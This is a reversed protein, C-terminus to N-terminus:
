LQHGGGTNLGAARELLGDYRTMPANLAAERTPGAFLEHARTLVALENGNM